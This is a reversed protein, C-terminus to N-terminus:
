IKQKSFYGGYMECRRRYGERKKFEFDRFLNLYDEMNIRAFSRLIGEGGIKELFKEYEKDVSTGGSPGGSAPILEELTGDDAKKHVTIDVTGGGLDAVMYKAKGEVLKQFEDTNGEDKREM